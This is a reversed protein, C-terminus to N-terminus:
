KFIRNKNTVISVDRFNKAAARVMTPGCIDVNEIIKKPSKNKGIKEQFPYFNVVILDINKFKKKMMERRHKKSSRDNLIGAHIKPHLTKVRGDLMENFKTYKSIEQCKYGLKKIEKFTGGSSIINIKYKNLIRLLRELNSKDSFFLSHIIGM